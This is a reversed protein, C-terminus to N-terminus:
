KRKGVSTSSVGSSLKSIDMIFSIAMQYAKALLVSLFLSLFGFYFPALLDWADSVARFFGIANLVDGALSIIDVGGVNGSPANLSGLQVSNLDILVRKVLNFINTIFSLFGTFAAFITVFLGAKILPILISSFFVGVSVKDLFRTLFSAAISIIWSISGGLFSWLAAFFAPM